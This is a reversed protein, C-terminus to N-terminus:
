PCFIAWSKKKARRRRCLYLIYMISVWFIYKKVESPLLSLIPPDPYLYVTYLIYLITCVGCLCLHLTSTTYSLAPLLPFAFGFGSILSSFCIWIWCDAFLIWIWMWFGLSDICGSPRQAGRESSNRNGDWCYRGTSGGGEPFM